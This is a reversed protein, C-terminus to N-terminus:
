KQVECEADDPFKGPRLDRIGDLEADFIVRRRGEISAMRVLCGLRRNREHNLAVFLGVRPNPLCEVTQRDTLALCSKPPWYMALHRKSASQFQCSNNRRSLEFTNSSIAVM